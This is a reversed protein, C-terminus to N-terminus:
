SVKAVEIKKTIENIRPALLYYSLCFRVKALVKGNYLHNNLTEIENASM